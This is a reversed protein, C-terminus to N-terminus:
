LKKPVKNLGFRAWQLVFGLAFWLNDKIEKGALKKGIEEDYNEPCVCASTAYQTFGTVQEFKVLCTKPDLKTATIEAIISDVVEPTIRTEDEGLPLYASEFVDKPSWSKYGNDYTVDYGNNKPTAEILKVGIYKM